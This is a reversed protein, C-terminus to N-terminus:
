YSIILKRRQIGDKNQLIITYFGPSLDRVNYTGKFIGVVTKDEELIKVRKGDSSYLKLSFPTTKPSYFQLYIMESAPNPYLQLDTTGGSERLKLQNIKLTKNINGRALKGSFTIEGQREYAETNRKVTVTIQGNNKGKMPSIELWGASINSVEWELDTYIDFQYKLEDVGATFDTPVNIYGADKAPQSVVFYSTDLGNNYVLGIRAFRYLGTSNKSVEINFDSHETGSKSSKITVWTDYSNQILKWDTNTLIIRSIFEGDAKAIAKDTPYFIATPEKVSEQYVEVVLVDTGNTVYLPFGSEVPLTNPSACLTVTANGSGNQPPYQNLFIPPYRDDFLINWDGTSTIKIDLCGGKAPFILKSPSVSLGTEGTTALCAASAVINRIADGSQKGFGLSVNVGVDKFNDCYSMIFGGNAPIIPSNPNFCDAGELDSIQAGGQYSYFSACDDIQTNNGNWRCAHTHYSGLVHGAEHAWVSTDWSFVPYGQYDGMLPLTLSNEFTSTNCLTGIGSALGGGISQTTILHAINGNFGGKQGLYARFSQLYEWAPYDDNGPVFPSKKDWIYIDSIKFDINEKNFIITVQSLCATLYQVVNNANGIVQFVDYDAEIYNYVTKENRTSLVETPFQIAPYDDDKLMCKGHTEKPLIQEDYLIYDEAGKIKGLVLNGNRNTIFGTINDEYISVAVLSSPDGKIYGHYHIGTDGTFKAGSALSVKFQDGFINALTLDLQITNDDLGPITLYLKYEPSQRLKYLQSDDIRLYVSLKDGNRVSTREADKEFLTTVVHISQANLQIQVFLAFLFTIPKILKM